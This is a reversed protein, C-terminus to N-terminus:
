GVLDRHGQNLFLLEKNAQCNVLENKNQKKRARLILQPLQVFEDVVFLLQHFHLFLEKALFVVILAVTSVHSIVWMKIPPLFLLHLYIDGEDASNLYDPL